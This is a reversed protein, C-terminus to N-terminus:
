IRHTKSGEYLQVFSAPDIKNGKTAPQMAWFTSNLGYGIPIARVGDDLRKKILDIDKAQDGVLYEYMNPSLKYTFANLQLYQYLSGQIDQKFKEFNSDDEDWIPAKPNYPVQRESLTGSKELAEIYFKLFTGEQYNPCKIMFPRIEVNYFLYQESLDAPFGPFTELASLVAFATCTGRQQQNKVPSQYIRYDVVQGHICCSLISWILVFSFHKM